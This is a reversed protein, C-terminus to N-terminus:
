PARRLIYQRHDTTCRKVGMVMPSRRRGTSTYEHTHLGCHPARSGDGSGHHHRRGCWICPETTCSEPYSRDVTYWLVPYARNGRVESDHWAAVLADDEAQDGNTETM